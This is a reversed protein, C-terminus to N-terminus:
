TIAPRTNLINMCQRASLAVKQHMNYLGEQGPWGSLAGLGVVSYVGDYLAHYARMVADAQAKVTDVVPIRIPKHLEVTETAVKVIPCADFYTANRALKLRILVHYGDKKKYSKMPLFLTLELGSDPFYSQTVIGRKEPTKRLKDDDWGRTRKMEIYANVCKARARPNNVRRDESAVIGPMALVTGSKGAEDVEPVSNAKQASKGAL